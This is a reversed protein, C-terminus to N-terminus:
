TPRTSAAARATGSCSRPARILRRTCTPERRATRHRSNWPSGHQCEAPAEARRVRARDRDRDAALVAQDAPDGQDLGPRHHEAPGPAPTSPLDISPLDISPLHITPCSASRSRSGSSRWRSRPPATSSTAPRSCARTRTSSATSGPPARGRSRSWGCAREGDDARARRPRRQRGVVADGRRGQLRRGEADDAQRGGQARRRDRRRRAPARPRAGVALRARGRDATGRARHLIDGAHWWRVM